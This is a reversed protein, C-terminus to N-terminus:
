CRFARHKVTTERNTVSAEEPRRPPFSHLLHLSRPSLKIGRRAGPGRTRAVSTPKIARFHLVNEEPEAGGESQFLFVM